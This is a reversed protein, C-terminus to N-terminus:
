SRERQEVAVYRLREEDRQEHGKYVDPRLIQKHRDDKVDDQVAPGNRKSRCV